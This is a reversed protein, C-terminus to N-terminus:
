KSAKRLFEDKFAKLYSLSGFAVIIDDKSTNQLIYEAANHVNKCDVVKSETDLESIVKSLEGSDLARPNDPTITIYTKHCASTSMETIVKRYDKDKFIGVVFIINKQNFQIKINSSLKAAADENHAGDLIILPEECITEYRYPLKATKLGELVAKENIKFGKLNLAKAIEIAECANKIQYFGPQNIVINEFECYNFTSKNFKTRIETPKKLSVLESNHLNCKEKLICRVNEDDTQAVTEDNSSKSLETKKKQSKAHEEWYKAVAEDQEKTRYTSLDFNIGQQTLEVDKGRFLAQVMGAAYLNKLSFSFDFMFPCYDKGSRSSTVTSYVDEQTFGDYGNDAILRRIEKRSGSGGMERLALVIAKEASRREYTM